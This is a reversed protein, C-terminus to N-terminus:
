GQACCCASCHTVSVPDRSSISRLVRSPQPRHVSAILIPGFTFGWGAIEVQNALRRAATNRAAKRMATHLPAALRDTRRVRARAIYRATNLVAAIFLMQILGIAVMPWATGAVVALTTATRLRSRDRILCSGFVVCGVVTAGVLYASVFADGIVPM